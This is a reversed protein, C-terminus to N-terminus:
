SLWFRSMQQVHREVLDANFDDEPKIVMKPNQPESRDVEAVFWAGKFIPRGGADLLGIEGPRRDFPIACRRGRKQFERAWVQFSSDYHDIFLDPIKEFVTNV